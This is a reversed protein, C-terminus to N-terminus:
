EYAAHPDVSAYLEALHGESASVAHVADSSHVQAASAQPTAVAFTVVALVAALQEATSQPDNPECHM